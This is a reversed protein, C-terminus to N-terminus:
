GVAEVLALPDVVRFTSARNIKRRDAVLVLYGEPLARSWVWRQAHAPTAGVAKALERTPITVLGGTTSREAVWRHMERQKGLFPSMKEVSEILALADDM